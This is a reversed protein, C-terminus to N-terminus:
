RTPRAIRVADRDAVQGPAIGLAGARAPDGPYNLLALRAAAQMDQSYPLTVPKGSLQGRLQLWAHRRVREAMGAQRDQELADAYNVLWLFDQGGQKLQRTYYAVARSPQDLVQYAAALAGWYAPNEHDGRAVIQAILERLAPLDHGDILFWLMANASSANDPAIGAAHRFDARAAQFDGSAQFFQARLLYFRSSGSLDLKPEM